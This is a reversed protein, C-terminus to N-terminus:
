GLAATVSEAWKTIKDTNGTQDNFFKDIRLSPAVLKGKVTNVFEELHEVAGCFHPFTSDGLGFVAFPKGELTATKLKETLAVFNEHPMGEHGEYDWSPSGLLVAQAATLDEAATTGAEKMTVQHGKKVLVDNITQAAMMTTGSNTAWVLLINM